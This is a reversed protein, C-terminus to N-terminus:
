GWGRSSWGPRAGTHALGADVLADYNRPAGDPNVVVEIPRCADYAVPEDSGRQTQM